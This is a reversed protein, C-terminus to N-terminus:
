ATPDLPLALQLTGRAGTARRPVVGVRGLLGRRPASCARAGRASRTYLEPRPGFRDCAGSAVLTDLAARNVPARRALDAVDAYPQGAAVTEAEEEGVSRVYGLGIRVAGGDNVCKASSLNI